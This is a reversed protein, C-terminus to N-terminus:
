KIGLFSVPQNFYIAIRHGNQMAPKWAPMRKLVRIVERDFKDGASNLIVIESIKGYEDVKFNAIVTKVEGEDLDGPTRLNKSLFRSFATLGGPFEANKEDKFFPKSVEEIPKTPAAGSGDIDRNHNVSNPFEPLEGDVTVVDILKDRLDLQDPVDTVTLDNDKVIQIISTSKISATIRERQEPQVPPPPPPPAPVDPPITIIRVTDPVVPNFLTLNNKQKASLAFFSFAGILLLIILLATGMRQEYYKRLAYAGYEKNRNEFLIDLMDAQLIEKSTM